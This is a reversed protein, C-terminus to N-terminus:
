IQVSKIMTSFILCCHHDNLHHDGLAKRLRKGEQRSRYFSKHKVLTDKLLLIPLRLELFRFLNYPHYIVLQSNQQGYNVQWVEHNCLGNQDINDKPSIIYKQCPHRLLGYRLRVSIYTNNSNM